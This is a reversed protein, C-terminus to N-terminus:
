WWNRTERRQELRFESGVDAHGDGGAGQDLHGPHLRDKGGPLRTPTIVTEGPRQGRAMQIGGAHGSSVGIRRCRLRARTRGRASGRRSAPCPRPAPGPPCERRRGAAQHRAVGVDARDHQLAGVHRGVRESQALRQPQRDVVNIRQDGPQMGSQARALETGGASRAVQQLRPLPRSIIGRVRFRMQHGAAGAEESRMQALPQQAVAVVHQAHVVIEGTALVVDRMEDAMRMELRHAVVDGEREIDLDVLDEIEGARRRRHVVLVIRDLGGLGRIPAILMSPRALRTPACSGAPRSWRPKRRDRGNMRLGLVVAAVDIREARAGAVVLALAAGLRQEEVIMRLVPSRMLTARDEVGISRAHM